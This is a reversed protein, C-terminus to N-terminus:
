LIFIQGFNEQMGNPVFNNCILNQFSLIRYLFPTGNCYNIGVLVSLFVTVTVSINAAGIMESCDNGLFIM